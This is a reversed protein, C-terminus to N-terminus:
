DMSRYKYYNGVGYEPPNKCSFITFILFLWPIFLSVSAVWVANSKQGFTMLLDYYMRWKFAYIFAMLITGGFTSILPGIIVVGSTLIALISVVTGGIINMGLYILAMIDRRNSKILNFLNFERIPLIFTLFDNTYPFFAMWAHKYGTKRAMIFLPIAQLLYNAVVWLIAAISIILTVVASIGTFALSGIGFISYLIGEVSALDQSIQENYLTTEM